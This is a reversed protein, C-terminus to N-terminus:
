IPTPALTMPPIVIPHEKLGWISGYRILAYATLFPRLIGFILDKLMTLHEADKVSREIKGVIIRVTRGDRPDDAGRFSLADPYGFRVLHM